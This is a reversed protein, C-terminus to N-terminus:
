DLVKGKRLAIPMDLDFPSASLPSLPGDVPSPNASVPKSAPVKPHHTYVYRFDRIPKTAPSDPTELPSVPSFVAFAPTPLLVFLSSLVTESITIPVHPSFYSVSEFVTVDPSV